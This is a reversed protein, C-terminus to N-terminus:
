GDDVVRGTTPRAESDEIKVGEAQLHELAVDWVTVAGMDLPDGAALLAGRPCFALAHAARYARFTAWPRGAAPNWLKVTGDASGSALTAADGPAYALAHIPGDHGCLVLM